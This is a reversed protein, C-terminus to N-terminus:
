WAFDFGGDSYHLQYYGMAHWNVSGDNHLVHVGDPLANASTTVHNSMPMNAAGTHSTNGYYLLGATPATTTNTMSNTLLFSTPDIVCLDSALITGPASTENQAPMASTMTYNYYHWYSSWNVSGGRNNLYIEYLDGNPSYNDPLTTGPAISTGRDAWYCYGSYFAWHTLIGNSWNGPAGLQTQENAQFGPQTSFLLSVGQKTPKLIGPQPNIMSGSPVGDTTSSVGFSSYYLLGFGWAPASGGAPSNFGGIPLKNGSNLPYHDKYENAYEQIAFGIQQLNSACVVQQALNRAKALAPLLLSILVAIISIVVLLEILTFGHRKMLYEKLFVM